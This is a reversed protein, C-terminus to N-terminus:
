KIRLVKLCRTIVGKMIDYLDFLFPKVDSLNFIAFDKKKSGFVNKLFSKLYYKRFFLNYLEHKMYIFHVVENQDQAQRPVKENIADLYQSFQLNVGSLNGVRHWMMSRLNIEMLKYKNDRYDYKFEPECIGMLNMGNLLKRGQELIIKPAQNSASSFIGFNDPYQNLKKGIWENLIKGNQNRYAVYAFIKSDDGPIVETSVFSFGENIKEKLMDCNLNLHELNKLYLNRFINFKLDDRIKPKILIPFNAKYLKKLDSAENLEMFEPFPIDNEKCFNYQRAKDMSQLINKINMPLFSFHKIKENIKKLHEIHMDDTPYIILYNKNDHLENLANLLSEPSKNIIRSSDIKNSFASLSKDYSLLAINKVSNDYLERIINYGNVYGGLVVAIDKKFDKM